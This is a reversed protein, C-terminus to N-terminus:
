IYCLDLVFIINEKIRVYKNSENLLVFSITARQPGLSIHPFYYNDSQMTIRLLRIKKEPNLESKHLSHELDAFFEILGREAHLAGKVLGSERVVDNSRVDLFVTNERDSQSERLGFQGSVCGVGGPVRSFVALLMLFAVYRILVGRLPRFFGFFVGLIAWGLGSVQRSLFRFASDSVATPAVTRRRTQQTQRTTRRYIERTKRARDRICM